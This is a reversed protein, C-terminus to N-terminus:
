HDCFVRVRSLDRTLTIIETQDNQHIQIAYTFQQHLAMNNSFWNASIEVCANLPTGAPKVRRQWWEIQPTSGLNDTHLSVLLEDDTVPWDAGGIRMVFNAALQELIDVRHRKIEDPQLLGDHNDDVANLIAVPLAILLILDDSRINISGFGASMLHASALKTFPLTATTFLTIGVLISATVLRM